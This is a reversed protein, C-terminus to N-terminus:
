NVVPGPVSTPTAFNWMQNFANGQTTSLICDWQQMVSQNGPVGGFPNGADLCMGTARNTILAVWEGVVICGQCPGFSRWVWQTYWVAPLYDDFCYPYQIIPTGNVYSGGRWDLMLCQGSHRARIQYFGNGRDILDFEQSYSSNNPWLFAGQFASTSGWMVDVRSDSGANKIEVRSDAFAPAIAAFSTLAAVV